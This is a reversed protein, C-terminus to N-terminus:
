KNVVQLIKFSDIGHIMAVFPVIYKAKNTQLHGIFHWEIDKPLADYKQVIEQAKNEGFIKHDAKYAEMIEEVPKTKSVAVLRVGAPLSDKIEAIRKGIDMM